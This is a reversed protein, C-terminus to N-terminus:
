LPVELQGELLCRSWSVRDVKVGQTKLEVANQTVALISGAGLSLSSGEQQLGSHCWAPPCFIAGLWSLIVERWNVSAWHMVRRRRREDWRYEERGARWGLGEMQLSKSFFSKHTNEESLRSGGGPPDEMQTMKLLMVSSLHDNLYGNRQISSTRLYCYGFSWIVTELLWEKDGTFWLCSYRFILMILIPAGRRARRRTVGGEWCRHCHAVNIILTHNLDGSRSDNLWHTWWRVASSEAEEEEHCCGSTGGSCTQGKSRWAASQALLCISTYSIGSMTLMRNIMMYCSGISYHHCSCYVFYTM